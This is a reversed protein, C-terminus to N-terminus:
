PHICYLALQLAHFFFRSLYILIFLSPNNFTRSQTSSVLIFPLFNNFCSQCPDALGGNPMPIGPLHLSLLLNSFSQIKESLEAALVLRLRGKTVILTLPLPMQQFIINHSQHAKGDTKFSAVGKIFSFLDLMYIYASSFSSIYLFHLLVTSM